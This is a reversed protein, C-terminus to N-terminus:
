RGKRTNYKAWARCFIVIKETAPFSFAMAAHMAFGGKKTNKPV